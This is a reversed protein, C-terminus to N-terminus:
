ASSGLIASPNASCFEEIRDSLGAAQLPGELGPPRNRCDHADSAVTHVQGRQFLDRSFRQADTGFRGELASATVQTRVGEALLSTLVDPDAM